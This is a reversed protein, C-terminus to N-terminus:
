QEMEKPGKTLRKTIVYLLVGSMILCFAAYFVAQGYHREGSDLVFWMALYPNLWMPVFDEVRYSNGSRRATEVLGWILFTGVTFFAVSAFSASTAVYTRRYAWSWFLSLSTFFAATALLLLNSMGYAGLPMGGVFAALLCLPFFIALILVTPLLAAVFKGLVIERATLRSLLLANWTQQEREQTISGAALPPVLFLILTMEVGLTFFVYMGEAQSAGGGSGLIARTGFYYLLLVIGGVVFFAANRSGKSQRRARLRGRVEKVLVPNEQWFAM